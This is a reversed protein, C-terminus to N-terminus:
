ALLYTNLLAKKTWNVSECATNTFSGGGEDDRSTVRKKKKKKEV